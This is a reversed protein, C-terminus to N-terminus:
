LHLHLVGVGIIQTYINANTFIVLCDRCQLVGVDIIQTYINANKFIVLCDGLIIFKIPIVESRSGRLSLLIWGTSSVM